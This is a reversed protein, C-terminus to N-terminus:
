DAHNQVARRLLNTDKYILRSMLVYYHNNKKMYPLAPVERQQFANSVHAPISMMLCSALASSDCSETPASLWLPSATIGLAHIWKVGKGQRRQHVTKLIHYRTRANSQVLNGIALRDYKNAMEDFYDWGDSMPHIVPIPKFGDAELMKRTEIKQKTGGLDIEIYGWCNNKVESILSKWNGIFKDWGVIETPPTMLGEVHSIGKAKAATAALGFIGSDILLNSGGKSYAKVLEVGDPSMCIDPVSLLLWSNLDKVIKFHSMVIASFFVNAESIHWVGHTEQLTTM